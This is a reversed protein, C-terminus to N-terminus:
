TGSVPWQAQPDYGGPGLLVRGSADRLGSPLFLVGDLAQAVQSIILLREDSDTFDPDHITGLSFGFSPILALVREKSPGDPFMSFYNQMGILQIPWNPPSYWNKDHTIVLRQKFWLSGTVITAKNWNEDPGEIKVDAELNRLLSAIKAPDGSKSFITVPETAM